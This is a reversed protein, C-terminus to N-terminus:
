VMVAALRPGSGASLTASTSGIGAPMVKTEKVDGTPKLQLVGATPAPPVTVQEIAVNATPRVAVNVSTTLIGGPVGGPVVNVFIAEILEAPVNSGFESFSLAACAVVTGAGAASTPTAFVAGTLATGFLLIV